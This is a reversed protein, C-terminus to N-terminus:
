ADPDDDLEDGDRDDAALAEIEAPSADVLALDDDSLQPVDLTGIRDPAIDAGDVVRRDHDAAAREGTGTSDTDSALDAPDGGVEGEGLEDFARAHRADSGSDSIDSPGLADTDRGSSQEAAREGGLISSTAM